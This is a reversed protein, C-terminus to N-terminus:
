KNYVSDINKNLRNLSEVVEAKIRLTKTGVKKYKQKLIHNGIKIASLTDKRVCYIKFLKYQPNLFQPVMYSSTLYCEEAKALVGKEEWREGMELYLKSNPYVQSYQKWFKLSNEKEIEAYHELLELNYCTYSYLSTGDSFSKRYLLFSLVSVLLLPICIIWSPLSFRGKCPRQWLALICIFLVQLRFIHMPYSFFCFILFVMLSPMLYKNEAMTGNKCIKYFLCFLFLWGALGHEAIVLLYENYPYIVDDALMQYISDPHNIFFDGQYYMYNALWGGTGTGWLPYDAIMRVTNYWIFIRGDASQPRISYLGCLIIGIIIFVSLFVYKKKHILHPFSHIQSMSWMVAVIVGLWAARSESLILGAAIILGTMAYTIKVLIHQKLNIAKYIGALTLTFSVATLGGLPGPNGFTGTVDFAHHNSELWHMKQLFAVGSELVGWLIVLYPIVTNRKPICIALIYIIGLVGGKWLMSFDLPVDRHFCYLALFGSLMILGNRPIKITMRCIIPKFDPKLDCCGLSSLHRKFNAYM